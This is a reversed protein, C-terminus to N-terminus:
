VTGSGSLYQTVVVLAWCLMAGGILVYQKTVAMAWGMLAFGALAFFIQFYTM